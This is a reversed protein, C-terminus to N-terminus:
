QANPHQPIMAVDRKEKLFFLKVELWSWIIHYSYMRCNIHINFWRCFRHRSTYLDCKNAM